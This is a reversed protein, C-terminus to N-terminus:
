IWFSKRRDTRPTRSVHGFIWNKITQDLSIYLSLSKVLDLISLGVWVQIHVKLLMTQYFHKLPCKKFTIDECQDIYSQLCNGAVSLWKLNACLALVYCGDEFLSNGGREQVKLSWLTVSNSRHIVAGKKYHVPRWVFGQELGVAKVCDVLSDRAENKWPRRLITEEKSNQPNYM